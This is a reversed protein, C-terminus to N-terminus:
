WVQSDPNNFHGPYNPDQEFISHEVCIQLTRPDKAQELRHDLYKLFLEQNTNLNV